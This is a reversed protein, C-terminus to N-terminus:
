ELGLGVEIIPFFFFYIYIYIYPYCIHILRCTHTCKGKPVARGKMSSSHGAAVSFLEESERQM